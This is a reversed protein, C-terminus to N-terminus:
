SGLGVRTPQHQGAPPETGDLFSLEGAVDTLTPM